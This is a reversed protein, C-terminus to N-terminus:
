IYLILRCIYINNLHTGIYNRIEDADVKKTFSKGILVDFDFDIAKLLELLSRNAGYIFNSEHLVFLVNM